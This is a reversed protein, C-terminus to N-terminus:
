GRFSVRSYNPLADDLVQQYEEATYPDQLVHQLYMLDEKTTQLKEQSLKMDWESALDFLKAPSDTCNSFVGFDRLDLSPRRSFSRLHSDHGTLLPVEVKLNRLRRPDPLIEDWSPPPPTQLSAALLQLESKRLRLMAERPLPIPPAISSQHDPPKGQIADFIASLDLDVARHDVALGHYRAHGLLSQVPSAM